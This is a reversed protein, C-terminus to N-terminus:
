EENLGLFSRQPLKIELSDWKFPLSTKLQQIGDDSISLGGFGFMVAQLMGGAGTTFYPNKKNPSESLVGFPLEKNPEYSRVFLEYAKNSNGLRSYLVSLIAYGMAPGEPSIRPEYFQLNKEIQIPDTIIELPYSLLNADAQKIIEGNYTSNERTTGDPFQLIPINKAVLEWDPNPIINLEQAARVAFKLSTIAMANTFANNNVNEQWENAGIVNNIEFIGIKKREVRSTWFDAVEKLIPYGRELLWKKDKTVQYYKWCAWGICGTIHHQFPGTLAWVPTEELGDEASEWPFMAGNYGHARANRKAAELREFRYELLSRALEPHLLLLPPFMWLEADWFIHGNYGLGSLGMPSLSYSTGARIFSYLHYLALRVDKQAQIDNEIIIDSNWLKEWEVEHRGVLRDKGELAAFISLREAENVPDQYHQTTTFSSVISFSYTEGAKLAKNFKVLHKNYNWDEHILYPEQGHPEFYYIAM